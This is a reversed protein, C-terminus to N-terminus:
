VAEPPFFWTPRWQGAHCPSVAATGSMLPMFTENRINYVGADRLPNASHKPWSYDCMFYICDEQYGSCEGARLSKSSHQGLFLAHGDLDNVTRWGAPDTGLDAEFVGLAVTRNHEFFDDSTSRAIPHIWRKVMLLRDGCEVLYGRIMYAKEESLSQPIGGLEGM